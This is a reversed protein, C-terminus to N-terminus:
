RNGSLDVGRRQRRHRPRIVGVGKRRDAVESDCGGARDVRHQQATLDLGISEVPGCHDADGVFGYGRQSQELDEEVFVPIYDRAKAVIRETWIVVGM